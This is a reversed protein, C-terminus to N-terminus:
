MSRRAHLENKVNQGFKVILIGILKMWWRFLKLMTSLFAVSSVM